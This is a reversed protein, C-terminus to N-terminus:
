GGSASDGVDRCCVRGRFVTNNLTTDNMVASPSTCGGICLESLKDIIHVCVVQSITGAGVAVELDLVLSVMNTDEIFDLEENILQSVLCGEISVKFELARVISGCKSVQPCNVSAHM